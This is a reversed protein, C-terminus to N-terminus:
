KLRKYGSLLDVYLILIIGLLEIVYNDQWIILGTGLFLILGRKLLKLINDTNM